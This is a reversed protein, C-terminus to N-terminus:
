EIMAGVSFDCADCIVRTPRTRDFVSLVPASSLLTRLKEFSVQCDDTWVFEIGKRTLETMPHAIKACKEIFRRYYNCLGLFM